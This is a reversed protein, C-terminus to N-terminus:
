SAKRRIARPYSTAISDMRFIRALAAPVPGRLWCLAYPLVDKQNYLTRHQRQNNPLLMGIERAPERGDVARLIVNRAVTGDQPDFVSGTEDGDGV